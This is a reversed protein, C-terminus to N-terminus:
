GRFLFLRAADKLDGSKRLASRADRYKQEAAVGPGQSAGPKVVPPAKQVTAVSTAKAAQQKRYQAAEYALQVFRPDYIDELETASYGVALATSAADNKADPGWTKITQALYKQGADLAELKKQHKWQELQTEKGKISADLESAREKLTEMKQRLTLHQEVSLDAWEVAKFQSLQHKIGQLEAREPSVQQEFAQQTRLTENIAAAQRTLESLAQTKQTYDERRLHGDRWEAVKAKLKPPLAITEGDIEFPETEPEAETAQEPAQEAEAPAEPEVPATQEVQTSEEPAAESAFFSNLRDEPSPSDAPATQEDM